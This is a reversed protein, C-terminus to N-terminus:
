LWMWEHGFVGESAPSYGYIGPTDLSNPTGDWHESADQRIGTVPDRPATFATCGTLICSALILITKM